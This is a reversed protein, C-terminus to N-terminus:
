NMGIVWRNSLECEKVFKEKLWNISDDEISNIIDMCGKFDGLNRKVEAVM